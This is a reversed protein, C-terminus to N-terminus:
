VNSAMQIPSIASMIKEWDDDEDLTNNKSPYVIWQSYYIVKCQEMQMKIPNCICNFMLFCTRNVWVVVRRLIHKWVEWLALKDFCSHQIESFSCHLSCAVYLTNWNRFRSHFSRRSFYKTLQPPPPPGKKKSLTPSHPTLYNTFFGESCFGLFLHAFCALFFFLSWALVIRACRSTPFFTQSVVSFIEM